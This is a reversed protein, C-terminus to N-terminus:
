ERARDSTIDFNNWLLLQEYGCSKSLKIVIKDFM